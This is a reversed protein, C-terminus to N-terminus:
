APVERTRLQTGFAHQVQSTTGSLQLMTTSLRTVTLGQAQFRRTIQAVTAADPGYASAFEQTTLFHHYQPSGQTYVAQLHEQLAGPNRLKLAITVTVPTGAPAAGLDVSQPTIAQPYPAAHAAGFTVTALVVALSLSRSCM